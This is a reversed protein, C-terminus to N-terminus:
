ELLRGDLLGVYKLIQKQFFLWCISTALKLFLFKEKNQTMLTACHHM